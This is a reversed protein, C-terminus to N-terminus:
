NKDKKVEKHDKKKRFFSSFGKKKKEKELKSNEDDEEFTQSMSPHSGAIRTSMQEHDTTSEVSSSSM